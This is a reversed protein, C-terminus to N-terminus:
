VNSQWRNRAASNGGCGDGCRRKGGRDRRDFLTSAQSATTHAVRAAGAHARASTARTTSKQTRRRTCCGERAAYTTARARRAATSSEHVPPASSAHVPPPPSVHVPPAPAEAPPAVAGAANHFRKVAPLLRAAGKQLTEEAERITCVDCPQEILALEHGNPELLRLRFAYDKGNITIESAVLWSAKLASAAVPVCSNQGSCNAINEGDTSLRMRTEAAATVDDESGTIGRVIANHFRDRLEPAAEPKILPVLAAGHDAFAPAAVAMLLAAVFLKM